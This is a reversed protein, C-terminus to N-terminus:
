AANEHRIRWEQILTDQEDAQDRFSPGYEDLDYNNDFMLPNVARIALIPDFEDTSSKKSAGVTSWGRGKINGTSRTSPRSHIANRWRANYQSSDEESSSSATGYLRATKDSQYVNMSNQLRSRDCDRESDCSGELWTSKPSLSSFHAKAVAAGLQQRPTRTIISAVRSSVPLNM